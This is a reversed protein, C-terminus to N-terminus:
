TQGTTDYVNDRRTMGDHKGQTTRSGTGRDLTRDTGKNDDRICRKQQQGVKMPLTGVNTALVCHIDLRGLMAAVVAVTRRTGVLRLKLVTVGRWRGRLGSGLPRLKKLVTWGANWRRRAGTKTPEDNWLRTHVYAGYRAVARERRAM